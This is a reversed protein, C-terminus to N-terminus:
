RPTCSERRVALMRAECVGSLLRYQRWAPETLVALHEKGSDDHHVPRSPTERSTSNGDRSAVAMPEDFWVSERPTRSGESAALLM